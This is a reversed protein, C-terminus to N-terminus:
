GDHNLEGGRRVVGAGYRDRIRDLAAGLASERLLPGDDFLMLQGSEPALGSVSLSLSRVRVRRTLSRGLLADAVRWLRQDLNAPAPFRGAGVDVRGDAYGVVLRLRSATRRRARLERGAGEVLGRLAARLRLPDNTDEALTVERRLVPKRVPPQVPRPDIGLARQHLVVGFRGFAMTLHETEVTALQRVLRVNLARLERGIAAGVGPLREVQLPALFPAEDGARVDLLGSPETVDAAVRSVLKNVAVGLAAPLRLARSLEKRLRAAADVPSGFLRGTGTVDIYVRGHARPELVPSFRGAVEMVARGARAYLPENPPLARLSRCRRRAEALPMGPRIGERRAETSAATVLARVTPPAVVVPRERLAPDAVREVAVAFDAVDLHLVQREVIRMTPVERIINTKNEGQIIYGRGHRFDVFFM